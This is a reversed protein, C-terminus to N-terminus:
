LSPYYDLSALLNGGTLPRLPAPTKIPSVKMIRPAKKRIM